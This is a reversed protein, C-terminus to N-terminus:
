FFLISVFNLFFFFHTFFLFSDGSTCMVIKNTCAIKLIKEFCILDLEGFLRKTNIDKKADCIRSNKKKQAQKTQQSFVLSYDQNCVFTIAQSPNLIKLSNM